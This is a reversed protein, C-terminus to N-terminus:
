QAIRRYNGEPLAVEDLRMRTVPPANFVILQHLDNLVAQAEGYYGHGLRRWMLSYWSATPVGQLVAIAIKRALFQSEMDSRGSTCTIVLTLAGPGITMSSAALARAIWRVHEKFFM